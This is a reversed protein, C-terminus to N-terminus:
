EDESDQITLKISKIRRKDSSVITFTYHKYQIESEQDPIEGKLELILGALTEAEGICDTFDEKRIQKIKFFDNLLIKAEFL